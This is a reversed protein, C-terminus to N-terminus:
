KAKVNTVKELEWAFTPTDLALEGATTGVTKQLGQHAIDAWAYIVPLDNSQIVAYQQYIKARASQDFTTLGEDILKDVEPNSYCIYNNTDPKEATACEKSYYLSYPDPDYGTGFGGFYADFPKGTETAAANIHPFVTLMNLIAGFDTEKFKIEIGCDKVQDAM